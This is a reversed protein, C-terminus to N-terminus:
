VLLTTRRRRRWHVAVLTGAILMLTTPQPIAAVPIGTDALIAVDLLSVTYRSGNVFAIGNMLDSALDQGAGPPVNGLHYINQSSRPDAAPFFTLPVPGGYVAEAGAGIFAPNTTGPTTLADYASEFGSVTPHGSLIDRFGSFGFAHALEHIMVSYADTKDLPVLATRAAPDPDFWLQNAVYAPNLFVRIDPASGNPDIGTRIEYAAGVQGVTLGNHVGVPSTTASASAARPTASTFTVEAELSANSAFFRSWEAFAAGLNSQIETYFAANTAGPDDFSIDYTLGVSATPSLTMSCLVALRLFWRM